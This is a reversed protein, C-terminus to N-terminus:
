SVCGAGHAQGARKADGVPTAGKAIRGDCTGRFRRLDCNLQRSMMESQIHNDGLGDIRERRLKGDDGLRSDLEGAGVVRERLRARNAYGTQIERSRRSRTPLRTGDILNDARDRYDSAVFDADFFSRWPRMREVDALLPKQLEAELVQALPVTDYLELASIDWGDIVLDGQDLLPVNAKLPSFPEELVVERSQARRVQLELAATATLSGFM